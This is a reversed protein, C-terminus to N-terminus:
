ITRAQEHVSFNTSRQSVQSMTYYYFNEKVYVSIYYVLGNM